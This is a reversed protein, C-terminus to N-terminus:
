MHLEGRPIVARIAEEFVDKIGVETQASCEKYAVAGIKKRMAKGQQQTIPSKNKAKLREIDAESDRLDLKTGVLIKPM